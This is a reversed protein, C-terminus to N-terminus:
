LSVRFQNASPSGSSQPCFSFLHNKKKQLVISRCSLWLSSNAQRGRRLQRPGRPARVQRPRHGPGERAGRIGGRVNRQRRDVVALFRAPDCTRQGSLRRSRLLLAPPHLSKNEDTPGSSENITTPTPPPLAPLRFDQVQALTLVPLSEESKKKNFSSM